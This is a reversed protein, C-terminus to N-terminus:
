CFLVEYKETLERAKTMFGKPQTIMGAAGQVMPEMLDGFTASNELAPVFKATAKLAALRAEPGADAAM